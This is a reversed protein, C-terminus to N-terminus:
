NLGGELNTQIREALSVNGLSRSPGLESSARIFGQHLESSARAGRLGHDALRADGQQPDQHLRILSGSPKMEARVTKFTTKCLSVM